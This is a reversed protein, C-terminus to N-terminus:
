GGQVVNSREFATEYLQGGLLHQKSILVALTPDMGFRDQLFSAIFTRERVLRDKLAQLDRDWREM